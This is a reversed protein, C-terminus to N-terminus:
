VGGRERGVAKLVGDIGEVVKETEGDVEGIELQERVPGPTGHQSAPLAHEPGPYHFSGPVGRLQFITGTNPTTTTTTTNNPSPITTTASELYYAWHHPKPAGTLPHPGRDYTIIYITHRPM